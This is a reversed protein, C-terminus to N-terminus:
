RGYVLQMTGDPLIEVAEMALSSGGLPPQAVYSFVPPKNGFYRRVSRTIHSLHDQYEEYGSPNGFFVLRVTLGNAKYGVLLQELQENFGAGHAKYYTYTPQLM